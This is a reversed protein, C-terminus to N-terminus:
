NKRRRLLGLGALGSGLLVLTGPEPIPPPGGGPPYNPESLSTGYQFSVSTVVLEYDVPISLTFVVSNKILPINGTVQDNGTLPNDGASLIGYNMGDVASPPALDPGNLNAGGFLGFGSSSIGADAGFPAGSLGDAYAWEGGVNGGGDPGFLVSSGSALMASVPTVTPDGALTFFVATLLDAPVLVDATSTNTLTVTLLGASASFTVSASLDGSSGSFSVAQATGMSLFVGLVVAAISMWMRTKM